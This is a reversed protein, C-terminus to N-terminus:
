LVFVFEMVSTLRNRPTAAGDFVLFHVLDFTVFKDRFEKALWREAGKALIEEPLTRSEFEFLLPFGQLLHLVNATSLIERCIQSRQGPASEPTQHRRSAEYDGSRPSPTRRRGRSCVALM